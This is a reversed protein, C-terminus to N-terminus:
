VRRPALKIHLYTINMSTKLIMTRPRQRKEPAVRRQQLRENPRQKKMKTLIKADESRAPGRPNPSLMSKTRM